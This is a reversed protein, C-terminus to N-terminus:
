TMKLVRHVSSKSTEVEQALQCVTKRRNIDIAAAIQQSKDTRIKPHGTRSKDKVESEGQSFRDFWIRVQTHSLARNGYVQQM